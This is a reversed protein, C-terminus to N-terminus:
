INKIKSILVFQQALLTIGIYLVLTNSQEPLFHDIMGHFFIMVGWLVLTLWTAKRFYQNDKRFVKCSYGRLIGFGVALIVLNFFLGLINVLNFNFKHTQVNQLFVYIGLLLIIYKSKNNVKIEKPQLQRYLVYIIILIYLYLNTLQM